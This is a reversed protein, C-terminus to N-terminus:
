SLEPAGARARVQHSIDPASKPAGPLTMKSCAILMREVPIVRGAPWTRESRVIRVDHLRVSLDTIEGGGRDRRTFEIEAVLTAPGVKKPACSPVDWTVELGDVKAWSGLSASPRDGVVFGVLVEDDVEPIAGSPRGPDGSRFNTWEPTHAGTRAAHSVPVGNQLFRFYTPMPM